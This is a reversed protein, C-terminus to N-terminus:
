EVRVREVKVLVTAAVTKVASGTWVKVAVGSVAEGGGKQVTHWHSMSVPSFTFVRGQPWGKWTAHM